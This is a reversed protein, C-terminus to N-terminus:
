AEPERNVIWAVWGAAGVVVHWIARAVTQEKAWLWDVEDPRVGGRRITVFFDTLSNGISYILVGGDVMALLMIVGSLAAVWVGTERRRSVAIAGMVVEALLLTASLVLGDSIQGTFYFVALLAAHILLMGFLTRQLLPTHKRPASDQVAATVPLITLGDRSVEGQVSSILTHLVPLLANAQEMTRVAEITVASVATHLVLKCRAGRAVGYLAFVFAIGPLISWLAWRGPLAMLLVLTLFLTSGAALTRPFNWASSETLVIAQVDAIQFRIYRDSFRSSNLYLLEAGEQWFEAYRFVGSERPLLLRRNM